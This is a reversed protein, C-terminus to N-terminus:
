GPVVLRLAGSVIEITQKTEPAFIEGDGFFATPRDCIMRLQEGRWVEVGETGEHRGFLVRILLPLVSVRAHHERILCVDFRGDDPIAGPSMRFRRGLFSQNQIMLAFADVLEVRGDRYLTFTARHIERQGLALLVGLLYIQSGLLGVLLKGGRSRKLRDAIATVECPFGVGGATAYLRGNVRILDAQRIRGGRIVECAAALDFPIGHLTALDNAAGRPIVGLATETGALGNLVENITGDGGVAVVVDVGDAAARRAIEVAHGRYGAEEIGILHDGLREEIAARLRRGSGNRSEPNVIARITRAGRPELSVSEERAALVATRM